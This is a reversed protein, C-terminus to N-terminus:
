AGRHYRTSPTGPPNVRGALRGRGFTPTQNAAQDNGDIQFVNIESTPGVRLVAMQLGDERLGGEARAGFVDSYFEVFRDLDATLVAVHDFGALM